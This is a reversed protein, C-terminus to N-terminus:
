RLISNGRTEHLGGAPDPSGASGARPRRVGAVRDFQNMQEQHQENTRRLKEAGQNQYHRNRQQAKAEPMMALKDGGVQVPQGDVLVPVFGRLGHRSVVADSLFKGRFGPPVHAAIAERYPDPAEFDEHGLRAEGRADLTKDFDGGAHVSRPRESSRVEAVAHPRDLREAIGQDTNQYPILHGGPMDEVAIGGVTLGSPEFPERERRLEPSEPLASTKAGATSSQIKKAM